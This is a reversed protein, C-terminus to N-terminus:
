SIGSSSAGSPYSIEWFFCSPAMLHTRFGYSRSCYILPYGPRLLASSGLVWKTQTYKTSGSSYTSTPTFSAEAVNRLRPIALNEHKQPAKRAFDSSPAM